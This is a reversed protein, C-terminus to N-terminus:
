KGGQQEESRGIIQIGDFIAKIVVKNKEILESTAKMAAKAESAFDYGKGLDVVQGVKLKTLGNYYLKLFKEIESHDIEAIYTDGHYSAIGLIRM